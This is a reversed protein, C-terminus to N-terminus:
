WAIRFCPKNEDHSALTKSHNCTFCHVQYVKKLWDPSISWTLDSVKTRRVHITLSSWDKSLPPLEIENCCSTDIKKILLSQNENYNFLSNQWKDNIKPWIDSPKVFKFPKAKPSPSSISRCFTCSPRISGLTLFAFSRSSFWFLCILFMRLFHCELNSIFGTGIEKLTVLRSSITCHFGCLCFLINIM